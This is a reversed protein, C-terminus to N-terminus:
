IWPLNHILAYWYFPFPGFLLIAGLIVDQVLMRQLAMITLGIANISLAAMWGYATWRRKLILLTCIIFINIPWTSAAFLTNKIKLVGIFFLSQFTLWSVFGLVLARSKRARFSLFLSAAILCIGVAALMVSILDSLVILEM